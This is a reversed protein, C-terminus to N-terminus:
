SEGGNSDRDLLHQNASDEGNPNNSMSEIDSMESDQVDIEALQQHLLSRILTRLPVARTESLYRLKNYDEQSVRVADIKVKTM